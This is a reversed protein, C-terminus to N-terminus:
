VSGRNCNIMIHSIYAKRFVIHCFSSVTETLNIKLWESKGFHHKIPM